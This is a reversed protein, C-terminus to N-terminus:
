DVQWHRSQTVLHNMEAAPMPRALHFGQARDCHMNKLEALQHQNEVGEATVQLDLAAAMSLIAAVLATDHRNTGLGDVFARDIKVADVPFRSLYSLSSYGTGFDDISLRTGLNKLDTLTKVFYEVDGMFVSETLELCLSGPAVGTRLLIDQVQAVIDHSLIQRVSLNVAVSMSPSTRQWQILQHCAQELVWAGIPVILGTDEATPIFEVPSVSGIGPREWRLLAEASVMAGTTLDIVPQYHVSLEDNELARRLAPALNLRREAQTQLQHDFLEIRDRGLNKAHYMAADADRLLSEPTADADAIAVGLSATINLDRDAVRYTDRVLALVREAIREIEATSTGDCVIAFEDGGFRAVTDGARTFTAIREAVQKLLDDGASHGLSDNVVKFQDIDLFIVGLHSARRRTGALAQTLRDTLLTRNALGTLSDHLAQQVLEDQMRKRETIDQLQALFYEPKGAEDHVATLHLSTWVISGDPRLFRREDHYKDAGTVGRAQMARGVPLEDPHHYADWSCNILEHEPRGLIACGAANVRIPVGHLDLIGAGIGAQEFGAEFRAEAHRRVRDAEIQDTDDQMTGVVRIVTGDEALEAEALGNIHREQSDGRVIRSVLNVAVGRQAREWLQEVAARDDPHIISVFVEGSAPTTQDVGLIRRLEESWTLQGTAVDLEFSGVRAIRQAAALQRRSAELMRQAHLRETIDQMVVSLGVVHGAPDLTPSATILVDVLSDDKRRRRTEHRETAGSAVIRARMDDQEAVRGLPMLVAVPSGIMEEPSYGFLRQAAHNWSTIIGDPTSAFIADGSNEVIAALQRDNQERQKQDTIDLAVVGIGIVEDDVMVPYYSTSWDRIVTPDAASPGHVEVGLLTAANDLVARYMPEMQPWLAPVLDPVRQGLQAAVTSGNYSALTENVLVRRLDRDVFGLGIPANSNLTELLALAEATKRASTRVAVELQKADDIDTATGIWHVASGDGNDFPGASLSHWRYTGDFRRLRCDHDFCHHTATAFDWALMADEADDPHIASGWGSSIGAPHGAYTRFRENVYVTSGDPGAMWVLQPM